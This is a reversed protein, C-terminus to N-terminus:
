EFSFLFLSLHKQDVKFGKIRQIDVTLIQENTQELQVLIEM